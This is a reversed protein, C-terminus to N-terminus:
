LFVSVCMCMCVGAGLSETTRPMKRGVGGDDFRSKQSNAPNSWTTQPEGLLSGESAAGKFRRLFVYFLCRTRCGRSLNKQNKKYVRWLILPVDTKINQRWVRLQVQRCRSRRSDVGVCFMLPWKTFIDKHCHHKRFMQHARVICFLPARAKQLPLVTMSASRFLNLNKKFLPALTKQM